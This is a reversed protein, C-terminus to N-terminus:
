GHSARRTDNEQSQDPAAESLLGRVNARARHLRSRVTGVPIGLAEAVQAYSLDGWVFLLLTDRDDPDLQVLARGIAAEADIRDLVREHDDRAEHEPIVRAYAALQRREHRRHTRILNAAIGYLWPRADHRDLDYGARARFAEVFTTAALDDALETGVRRALYRHILRFHRDFVAEFSSPTTLSAAIDVADDGPREM